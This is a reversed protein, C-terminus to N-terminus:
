QFAVKAESAMLSWLKCITSTLALAQLDHQHSSFERGQLWRAPSANQLSWAVKIKGQITSPDQRFV